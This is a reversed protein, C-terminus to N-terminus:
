RYLEVQTKCVSELRLCAEAAAHSDAAPGLGHGFSPRPQLRGSQQTAFAVRGETPSVASPQTTSAAPGSTGCGAVSPQTVTSLGSGSVSRSAPGLPTLRLSSLQLGAPDGGDACAAAAAAPASNPSVVPECAVGPTCRLPPLSNRKPLLAGTLPLQQHQQQQPQQKYTLSLQALAPGSASHHLPLAASLLLAGSGSPSLLSGSGSGPPPSGAALSRGSSCEDGAFKAYCRHM